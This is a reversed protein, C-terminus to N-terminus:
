TWAYVSLLLRLLLRSIIIINERQLIDISFFLAHSYHDIKTAFYSSSNKVFRGASCFKKILIAVVGCLKLIEICHYRKMDRNQETKFWYSQTTTFPINEFQFIKKRFMSYRWYKKKKTKIRFCKLKILGIGLGVSIILVQWKM